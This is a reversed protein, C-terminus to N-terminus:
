LKVVMCQTTPLEILNEPKDALFETFARAVGEQISYDHSLLIGGRVMRPYFFRLGDLTSQYLDADLHVLCFRTDPDLSAASGPFLGPHFHVGSFEELSTRVGDLSARFAHEAFIIRERDTTGPPLGDFTDFLHLPKGNKALALLKATSGEFVGVEALDGPLDRVSRALSHVLFAENLTVLPRCSWRAKVLTKLLSRDKHLALLLLEVASWLRIGLRETLGGSLRKQIRPSLRIM